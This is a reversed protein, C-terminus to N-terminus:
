KLRLSRLIYPYNHPTSVSWSMAMSGFQRNSAALVQDYEPRTMKGARVAAAALVVERVHRVYDFAEAVMKVRATAKPDSSGIAALAQDTYRRLAALEADSYYVVLDDLMDRRAKSVDYKEERAIRDTLQELHSYYQKMAPAGKGYAATCYDDILADLDANVNWLLRPIVYYTLGSSGWNGVVGDFDAARMGSAAMARLDTALKRLYNLPFGRDKWLLNPRFFIQKALGSWQAWEARDEALKRDSLYSEFGVYGVLLNPELHKLDTPPQRYISYAYCGLYRDPVEQAVRKGVENYFRFYRDTLNEEPGSAASDPDSDAVRPAGRADWARCNKCVCHVSRSTGDNPSISAALLSPDSKLERIKARAVLDWLKPNSVCLKERVNGTDRTGNPQLAFIDPHEPQYKDWWGGYAHGYSVKVRRGLRQHKFWAPAANTFTAKWEPISVGWTKMAAEARDLHTNASNRFSRLWLLPEDRIETNDIALTARAPVVEGLEGPMLWRVGLFEELFTYCGHATGRVALGADTRDKGIIHINSGDVKIVFGEPQLGTLKAAQKSATCPGVFIRTATAPHAALADERIVPLTAGTAKKVYAGLEAAAEEVMAAAERAEPDSPRPGAAPLVIVAQPVHNSVVVAASAFACWALPLVGALFGRLSRSSLTM